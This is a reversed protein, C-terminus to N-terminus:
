VTERWVPLWLFLAVCVTAFLSGGVLSQLVIKRQLRRLHREQVKMRRDFIMLRKVARVLSFGTKGRSGFVVSTNEKLGGAGKRGRGGVSGGNDMNDNDDGEEGQRVIRVESVKGMESGGGDHHHHDVREWPLRQRRSFLLLFFCSGRLGSLVLSMGLCWLPWAAFAEWRSHSGRHPVMARCLVVLFGAVLNTWGLVTAVCVTEFTGNGVGLRVFNRHSCNRLLSYVHDAVPKLASPHLPKNSTARLNSLVQTRLASPVNLEKPSHPLLFLSIVTSLETTLSKDPSLSPNTSIPSRPTTTQIPPTFSCPASKSTCLATTSILQSIRRLTEKAAESHEDDEEQSDGKEIAFSDEPNMRAVSSASQAASPISGCDKDGLTQYYTAEYKKFWMYFELNEESHEIYKLYMYFDYLSMPSCTKNALIRELRLRSPVGGNRGDPSLPRKGTSISTSYEKIDRYEPKKYWSLWTPLKFYM